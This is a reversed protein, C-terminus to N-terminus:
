RAELTMKTKRALDARYTALDLMVRKRLTVIDENLGNIRIQLTNREADLSDLETKLRTIKRRSSTVEEKLSVLSQELSLRERSPSRNASVRRDTSRSSFAALQQRSRFTKPPVLKDRVVPERSPTDSSDSPASVVSASSEQVESLSEPDGGSSYLFFLVALSVILIGIIIYHKKASKPKLDKEAWNSLVEDLSVTTMVVMRERCFSYLARCFCMIYIYFLFTLCRLQASSPLMNGYFYIAFCHGIVCFVLVTPPPYLLRVRAVFYLGVPFLLLCIFACFCFINTGDSFLVIVTVIVGLPSLVSLFFPTSFASRSM